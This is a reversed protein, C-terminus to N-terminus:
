TVAIEAHSDHVNARYAIEQNMPYNRGSPIHRLIFENLVHYDFEGFYVFSIYM